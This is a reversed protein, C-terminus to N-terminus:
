FILPFALEEPIGNTIWQLAVLIRIAIERANIYGNSAM